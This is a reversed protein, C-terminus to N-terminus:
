SSPTWWIHKNEHIPCQLLLEMEFTNSNEQRLQEKVQKMLFNIYVEDGVGKSVNESLMSVETEFKAKRTDHSKLRSRYMRRYGVFTPAYKWDQSDSPYKNLQAKWIFPSLDNPSEWAPMSFFYEARFGPTTKRLRSHTFATFICGTKAIKLWYKMANEHVILNYLGIKLSLVKESHVRM